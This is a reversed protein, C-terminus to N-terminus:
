RVRGREEETLTNTSATPLTWLLNAGLGVYRMDSALVFRAEAALTIAEGLRANIGFIPGVGPSVTDLLDEIFTGDIFDGRGNLLHLGLTGGVFPAIPREAFFVFHADLSLELDSRKVEGLDLQAPCDLDGQRECVLIIQESLRYLEEAKMTSSWYRASPIIRARPGLFGLDARIGFYNTADVNTPYVRGGEIGVGRFELDEYDYAEWTQSAAPAATVLLLFPLLIGFLERCGRRRVNGKAGDSRDSREARHSM